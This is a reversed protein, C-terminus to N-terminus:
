PILMKDGTPAGGRSLIGGRLARLSAAASGPVNGWSGERPPVRCPQQTREAGGWGGIEWNGLMQGGGAQPIRRRGHWGWVKPM